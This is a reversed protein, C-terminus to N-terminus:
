NGLAEGCLSNTLSSKWDGVMWATSRVLTSTAGHRQHPGPRWGRPLDTGNRVGDPIWPLGLSGGELVCVPPPWPLQISPVGAGAASLPIALRLRRLLLLRFPQLAFTTERLTPCVPSLSPRSPAVRLACSLRRPSMWSLVCNKKWSLKTCSLLLM